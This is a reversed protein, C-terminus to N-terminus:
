GRRSDELPAHPANVGSASREFVRTAALWLVLSKDHDRSIMNDEAGVAEPQRVIRAARPGIENSRPVQIAVAGGGLGRFHLGDGVHLVVAFLAM